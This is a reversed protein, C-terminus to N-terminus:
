YVSIHIRFEFKLLRSFINKRPITRARLFALKTLRFIPGYYILGKGYQWGQMWIQVINYTWWQVHSLRRPPREVPARRAKSSLAHRFGLSTVAHSAYTVISLEAWIKLDLHFLHFVLDEQYTWRASRITLWNYVHRQWHLKSPAM